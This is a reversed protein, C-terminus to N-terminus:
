WVSPGTIMVTPRAAFGTVKFSSSGLTSDDRRAVALLSSSSCRLKGVGCIEAHPQDGARREQNGLSQTQM